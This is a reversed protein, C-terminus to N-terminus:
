CINGGIAEIEKEDIVEIASIIGKLINEISMTPIKKDVGQEPLCPIHIFGNKIKPYKKEILYSVGYLVHNCIFSGASLSVSAPIKNKKINEVMKKVPLKTFYADAGDEFIKKDIIQVGENDPIRFDNLNIGIKEATIDARGEAQGISLIIDPEYKKIGEEIKELSKYAVTPIELVFIQHNAIKEPLLKIIELAPNISDNGFPDFGSVLIKM